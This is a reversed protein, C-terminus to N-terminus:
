QISWSPNPIRVSSIWRKYHWDQGHNSHRMDARRSNRSQRWCTASCAQEKQLLAEKIEEVFNARILVEEVPVDFLAPVLSFIGSIYASSGLGKRRLKTASLEMTRSRILAKEFLPNDGLDTREISFLMLSVWKHLNEYGLLAIAQRISAVHESGRYFASHVLNM